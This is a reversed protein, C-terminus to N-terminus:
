GKPPDPSIGTVSSREIIYPNFIMKSPSSDATEERDVIQHAISKAVFQCPHAIASINLAQLWFADDFALFSIDDPIKLKLDALVGYTIISIRESISFVATPKYQLIAERINRLSEEPRSSELNAYEIPPKIGLEQYAQHYGEVRNVGGIMLIRRHGHSFLHRMGVLTGLVDNFCFSSLEQFTDTILQFFHINSTTMWQMTKKLEAKHCSVPMFVINEVQSSALTHLANQQRGYDGDDFSLLLRYGYKQLETELHRAIDLFLPVHIDSIIIGVTKTRQHRLSAAIFSPSYHLEEAAKMIKDYTEKKILSDGRFARSVTTHSVGALKAVDKSTAM